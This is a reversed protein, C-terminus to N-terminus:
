SPTRSLPKETVISRTLGIRNWPLLRVGSRSTLQLDHLDYSHQRALAPHRPVAPCVDRSTEASGGAGAEEEASAAWGEGAGEEM